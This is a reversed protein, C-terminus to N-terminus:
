SYRGIERSYTSHTSLYCQVTFKFKRYQLNCNETPVKHAYRVALLGTPMYFCLCAVLVSTPLYDHIRRGDAKQSTDLPSIGFYVFNIAPWNSGIYEWIANFCEWTKLYLYLCQSDIYSLCIVSLCWLLNLGFWHDEVWPASTSFSRFWDRLQLTKFKNVM